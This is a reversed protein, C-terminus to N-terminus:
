KGRTPNGKERNLKVAQKVLATIAGKKIDGLARIKIHRMKDGDGELLGKPDSM